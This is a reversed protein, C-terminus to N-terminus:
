AQIEVFYSDKGKGLNVIKWKIRARRGTKAKECANLLELFAKIGKVFGNATMCEGPQMKIEIKLKTPKQEETETTMCDRGGDKEVTEEPTM